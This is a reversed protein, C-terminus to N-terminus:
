AQQGLSRLFVEEFRGIKGVKVGIHDSLQDVTICGNAYRHFALKLFATSM